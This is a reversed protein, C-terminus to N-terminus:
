TGANQLIKLFQAVGVIVLGIIIAKKIFSKDEENLATIKEQKTDVFSINDANTDANFVEKTPMDKNAYANLYDLNDIFLPFDPHAELLIHLGQPHKDIFDFAQRRLQDKSRAIPYGHDELMVSLLASENDVSYDLWTQYVGFGSM